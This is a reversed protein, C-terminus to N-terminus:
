QKVLVRARITKEIEAKRNAILTDRDTGFNRALIDLVEPILLPFANLSVVDLVLQVAEAPQYEGRAVHQDYEIQIRKIVGNGVHMIREAIPNLFKANNAVENIVFRPLLPNRVMFDFHALAGNVIRDLLTDGESGEFATLVSELILHVKDNLIKEFLNQKSRYYYHLMVHTVGAREAIRVTKAGAYGKEMFEQEAAELIAQEKNKEKSEAMKIAIKKNLLLSSCNHKVIKNICLYCM